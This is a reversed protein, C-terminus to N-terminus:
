PPLGLGLNPSYRWFFFFSFSQLYHLEENRLQTWGIDTTLTIDTQLGFRAM